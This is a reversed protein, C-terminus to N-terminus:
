NEEGGTMAAKKRTERTNLNLHFNLTIKNLRLTEIKPEFDSM